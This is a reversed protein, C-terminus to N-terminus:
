IVLYVWAEKGSALIVKIRKYNEPEYKDTILLEKRTLKLVTGKIHDNKNISSILTKQYKKEGQALFNKDEIEITAIKYGHLIDNATDVIRGFLKLQTDKQRLTGYSFLYESLLFM